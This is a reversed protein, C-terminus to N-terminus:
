REGGLFAKPIHVKNNSAMNEEYQNSIVNVLVDLKSKIWILYSSYVLEGKTNKRRVISRIISIPVSNIAKYPQYGYYAFDFSNTDYFSTVYFGNVILTGSSTLPAYLGKYIVQEINAIQAYICEYSDQDFVFTLKEVTDGLTLKEAYTYRNELTYLLHTKTVEQVEGDDFTQKLYKIDINDNFQLYDQFETSYRQHTENNITQIRDGPKQESIKVKKNDSDFVYSNPSFTTTIKNVVLIFIQVSYLSKYAKM